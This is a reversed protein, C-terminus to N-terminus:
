CPRAIVAFESGQPDYPTGAVDALIEEVALGAAAFEAQLNELSFYALWNYVRRIHQTEIITYQDLVVKEAPYKFVHLFGHYKEPSWFGNLLNVQYTATEERAAFATLSYVDLVVAGGPRLLARFKALMWARQAPSLACFDCMIMIILDFRETTQFDLYNAQCYKIALGQATANERAYALSRPSFDLGTVRAGAQALRAAYLGPGCGFDAVSQGEGLSFKQVLWAASREIFRHNRSSADINEDMHFALMRASTHEHTWLEPATYHEFPLPRASIAELFAFFDSHSTVQDPPPPM